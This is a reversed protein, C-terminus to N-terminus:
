SKMRHITCCQTPKRELQKFQSFALRIYYDDGNLQEADCNACLMSVTNLYDCDVMAVSYGKLSYLYSTVKISFHNIEIQKSAIILCISIFCKKINISVM